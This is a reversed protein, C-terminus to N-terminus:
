LPQARAPQRACARAPGPVCRRAGVHYSGPSASTSSSPRASQLLPDAAPDHETDAAAWLPPGRAPAIRTAHDARRPPRATACRPRPPSGLRGRFLRRRTGMAWRRHTMSRCCAATCSSACCAGACRSRCRPSPQRMSGPPPMSSLGGAATADFVGDIVVCHFHLHANLTSGFRPHLRRRRPAGRPRFRATRVGTNSWRGCSCACLLVRSLPTASCSTVCVSPCPWSGSACRCTRCSTITLHARDGGHPPRQVISV